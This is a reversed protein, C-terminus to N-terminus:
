RKGTMKKKIVPKPKFRNLYNNSCLKCPIKDTITSEFECEKCGIDAENTCENWVKLLADMVSVSEPYLTEQQIEKIRQTNM